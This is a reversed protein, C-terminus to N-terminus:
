SAGAIKLIRKIICLTKDSYVVKGCSASPDRDNRAALLARCDLFRARHSQIAEIV